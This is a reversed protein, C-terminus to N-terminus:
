KNAFEIRSVKGNLGNKKFYTVKINEDNFNKEFDDINLFAQEKKVEIKTWDDKKSGDPNDFIYIVSDKPVRHLIMSKAEDNKCQSNKKFNIKEGANFALSCIRDQTQNKGEFLEVLSAPEKISIKIYSIKGDLGNNPHSHIEYNENEINHNFSDIVAKTLSKKIYIESWDDQESANPSDYVSLLQGDPVNYLIVSRAEDNESKSLKINSNKSLSIVKVINQKGSNGEYFLALPEPKVGKTIEIRSVKGDLKTNTGNHHFQILYNEEVIDGSQFSSIELTDVDKLSTIDLWAEELSGDPDDFLRIRTDAPINRLKASKAEDNDCGYNEEDQFNIPSASELYFQCVKNQTLDNGEFLSISSSSNTDHMIIIKSIKGDLGNNGSYYLEIEDDNIAEEFTPIIREKIDKKIYIEAMDDEMEKDTSDFLKILTGKKLKLLKISRAEDNPCGSKDFDVTTATDAVDCLKDGSVNNNEYLSFGPGKFESLYRYLFGSGLTLLSVLTVLLLGKPTFFQRGLAVIIIVIFIAIVFFNGFFSTIDFGLVNEFINMSDEEM